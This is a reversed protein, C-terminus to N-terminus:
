DKEKLNPLHEAPYGAKERLRMIDPIEYPEFGEGSFRRTSTKYKADGVLRVSYVPNKKADMTLETILVEDFLAPVKTSLKGPVLLSTIIKGTVEDRMTDIHGTLIFDCPLSCFERFIQALMTQQVLYDQIQPVTGPRGERKLIFNMAADAMMTLSDIAVTGLAAYANNSKMKSHTNDFNRMASPSKIDEIEYETDLVADGSDVLNDLVKLKTGGPDFSYIYIPRRATAILSTKGTGVYGYALINFTKQGSVRTALEDRRTRLFDLSSM